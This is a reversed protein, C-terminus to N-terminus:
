ESVTWTAYLYYANQLLGPTYDTLIWAFSSDVIYYQWGAFDYGERTPTNADILGTLDTYYDYTVEQVYLDDDATIGAFIGGNADYTVSVLNWAFELTLSLNQTLVIRDLLQGTYSGTVYFGVIYGGSSAGSAPSDWWGRLQELTLTAGVELRLGNVTNPNHIGEPHGSLTGGIADYDLELSSKMINKIYLYNGTLESFVLDVISDSTVLEGWDGDSEGDKTWWGGFYAIFPHGEIRGDFLNEGKAFEFPTDNHEDHYYVQYVPRSGSSSFQYNVGTLVLERSTLGPNGYKVRSFFITHTNPTTENGTSGGITETFTALDSDIFFRGPNNLTDALKMGFDNLSYLGLLQMARALNRIEDLQIDLSNGMGTHSEDTDFRDSGRKLSNSLLRDLITSQREILRIIGLYTIRDMLGNGATAGDASPDNAVFDKIPGTLGLEDRLGLLVARIEAVSIVGDFYEVDDENSDNQVYASTFVASLNSATAINFPNTSTPVLPVLATEYGEYTTNGIANRISNSIIKQIIYSHYDDILPLISDITKSDTSIGRLDAIREIGMAVASLCLQQIEYPYIIAQHTAYLDENYIAKPKESEALYDGVQDSVLFLFVESAMAGYAPIIAKAVNVFRFQEGDEMNSFPVGSYEGIATMEIAHLFSTFEQVTIWPKNDGPLNVAYGVELNNRGPKTNINARIEDTIRTRFTLSQRQYALILQTTTLSDIQQADATSFDSLGVADLAYTLEILERTKATGQLSPTKFSDRDQVSYLYNVGDKVSDDDLVFGSEIFADSIVVQIIKSNRALAQRIRDTSPMNEQDPHIQNVTTQMPEDAPLKFLDDIGSMLNVVEDNTLYRAILLQTDVYLSLDVKTSGSGNIQNELESTLRIRLLYSGITYANSIDGVTLLKANFVRISNFDTIQLAILGDIMRYLEDQTIVQTLSTFRPTDDYVELPLVPIIQAEKVSNSIIAQIIKSDTAIANRVSQVGSLSDLSVGEDEGDGTTVITIDGIVTLGDGRGFLIDIGDLLNSMEETTLYTLPVPDKITELLVSNDV